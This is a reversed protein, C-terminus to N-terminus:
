ITMLAKLASKPIIDLMHLSFVIFVQALTSLFIACFARASQLGLCRSVGYAALGLMWFMMGIELINYALASRVAISVAFLPLAAVAVANVSLFVSILPRWTGREIKRFGPVSAAALALLGVAFVPKSISNTTYGLLVFLPLLAYLVSSALRVALHGGTMKRSFWGVMAVGIATFFPNWAHVKIWFVLDGELRLVPADAPLEPFHAPKLTYFLVGTVLYVVYIGLAEYLAGNKGAIRGM